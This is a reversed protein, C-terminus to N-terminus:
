VPTQAPSVNPGGLAAVTPLAALSGCCMRGLRRYEHRRLYRERSGPVVLRVAFGLQRRRQRAVLIKISGTLEVMCGPM